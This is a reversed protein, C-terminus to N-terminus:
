FLYIANLPLVLMWIKVCKFRFHVLAFPMPNRKWFQTAQPQLSHFIDSNINLWQLITGWSHQFDSFGLTEKKLEGYDLNFGQEIGLTRNGEIVWQLAIFKQVKFIYRMLSWVRYILTVKKPLYKHNVLIM